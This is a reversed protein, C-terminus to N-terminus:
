KQEKNLFQFEEEYDMLFKEYELAVVVDMSDWQLIDSPSGYGM